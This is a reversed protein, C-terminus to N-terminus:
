LIFQMIQITNGSSQICFAGSPFQEYGTSKTSQTQREVPARVVFTFLVCLDGGSRSTEPVDLSFNDISVISAFDLRCDPM